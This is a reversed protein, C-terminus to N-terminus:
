NTNELTAYSVDPKLFQTTQGTRAAIRLHAVKELDNTAQLFSFAQM